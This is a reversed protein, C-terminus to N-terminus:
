KRRLGLRDIVKTYRELDDKMFQVYDATGNEQLSMGLIKMREAMAPERMIKAIASQLREVVKPSMGAPGQLGLMDAIDFGKIGAEDCTPVDPLSTARELVSVCLARLKGAGIHPVVNPLGSWGAQIEGTLLGNVLATGGRYPVHLLKIGTREAFIEMTLQHISGAGASGFSMADPKSRALAVFESI